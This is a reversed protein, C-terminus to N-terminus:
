ASILLANGAHAGPYGPIPLTIAMQALQGLSNTEMNRM